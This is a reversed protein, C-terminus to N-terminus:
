RAFGVHSVFALSVVALAIGLIAPGYRKDFRLAVCGLLVSALAPLLFWLRDFRTFPGPAPAADSAHFFLFRPSGCIVVFQLLAALVSWWGAFAAGASVPRRGRPYSTSEYEFGAAQPSPDPPPGRGAVARGREASGQVNSGQDPRDAM